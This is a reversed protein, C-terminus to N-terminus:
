LSLGLGQNLKSEGGGAPLEAVGDTAWLEFCRTHNNAGAVWTGSLSPNELVENGNAEAPTQVAIALQGKSSSADDEEVEVTIGYYTEPSLAIQQDGSFPYQIKSDPLNPFAGNPITLASVVDSTALLADVTAGAGPTGTISWFKALTAFDYDEPDQSQRLYFYAELLNGIPAVGTQFIFGIGSRITLNGGFSLQNTGDVLLHAGELRAM